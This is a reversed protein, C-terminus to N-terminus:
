LVWKVLLNLALCAYLGAVIDDVVIGWGGPMKQVLDAPFIKTIDFFRFLLFGAVPVWFHGTIISSPIFLFTLWQGAAEDIVVLGPDTRGEWKEVYDSVPIGVTVFLFIGASLVVSFVPTSLFYALGWLLVLSGFSGATGPAIPSRGLSFLTALTLIIRRKVADGPRRPGEM